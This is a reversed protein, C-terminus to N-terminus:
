LADSPRNFLRSASPHELRARRATKKGPRHLSRGLTWLLFGVLLGAYVLLFGFVFVTSILERM